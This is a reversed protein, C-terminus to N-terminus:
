RDPLSRFQGEPDWDPPPPQAGSWKMGDTYWKLGWGRYFSPRCEADGGNEDSYGFEIGCSPCIEFSGGTDSRPPETLGPYGCAPCRFTSPATGEM